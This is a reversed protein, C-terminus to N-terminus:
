WTSAISHLMYAHASSVGARRAYETRSRSPITVAIAAIIAEDSGILHPLTEASLTRTEAGWMVPSSPNMANM